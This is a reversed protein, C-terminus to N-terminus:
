RSNCAARGAARSEYSHSSLSCCGRDHRQEQYRVSSPSRLRTAFALRHRSPIAQSLDLFAQRRQPGRSGRRFLRAVTGLARRLLTAVGFVSDALGVAQQVGAAADRQKTDGAPVSKQRADIGNTDRM